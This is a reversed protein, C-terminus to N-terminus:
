FFITTVIQDAGDALGSLLQLHTGPFGEEFADFLARLPGDMAGLNPHNRKGSFAISLLKRHLIPMFRSEPVTIVRGFAALHVTGISYQAVGL